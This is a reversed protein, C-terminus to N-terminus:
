GYNYSDIYDWDDPLSGEFGTSTKSQDIFWKGVRVGVRFEDENLGPLSFIDIYDWDTPRSGEFGTPTKAQDIYLTDSAVRLRFTDSGDTLILESTGSTSLITYQTAMRCLYPKNYVGIILGM